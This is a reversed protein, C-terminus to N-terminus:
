LYSVLLNVDQSFYIYASLPRKPKGEEKITKWRKSTKKQKDKIWIITESKSEITKPNKKPSTTPEFLLNNFVEEKIEEKTETNEKFNELEGFKEEFKKIEQLYRQKDIIASQEFRKKEESNLIQWEKGVEKMVELSHMQPYKQCIKPRTERVFIMYASLAKKPRSSEIEKM